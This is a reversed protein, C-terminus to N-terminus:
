LQKIYEKIAKRMLLLINVKQFEESTLYIANDLAIKEIVREIRANDTETKM